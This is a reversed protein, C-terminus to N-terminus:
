HIALDNSKMKEIKKQDQVLKLACSLQWTSLLSLCIRSIKLMHVSPVVEWM